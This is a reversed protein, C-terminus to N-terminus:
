KCEYDFFVKPGPLFEFSLKGQEGRPPFAAFVEEFYAVAEKVETETLCIGIVSKDREGEKPKEYALGYELCIIFRYLNQAKAVYILQFDGELVSLESECNGWTVNKLWKAYWAVEWTLICPSTRKWTGQKNKAEVSLVLWNADYGDTIDPFQYGEISFRFYQRYLGEWIPM